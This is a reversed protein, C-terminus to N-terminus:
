INDATRFRELWILRRMWNISILFCRRTSRFFGRGLPKRVREDLSIRFDMGFSKSLCLLRCGFDGCIRAHGRAIFLAREGCFGVSESGAERSSAPVRVMARVRRMVGDVGTPSPGTDQPAIDLEGGRDKEKKRRSPAYRNSFLRRCCSGRSKGARSSSGYPTAVSREAEKRRRRPTRLYTRLSPSFNVARDPILSASLASRASKPSPFVCTLNNNFGERHKHNSIQKYEFLISQYCCSKNMEDVLIYM